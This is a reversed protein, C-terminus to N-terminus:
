STKHQRQRYIVNMCALTQPDFLQRRSREVDFDFCSTMTEQKQHSISVYLGLCLATSGIGVLAAFGLSKLLYWSEYKLGIGQCSWLTLSCVVLSHNLFLCTGHAPDATSIRCKIAMIKTLSPLSLVCIRGAWWFQGQWLDDLLLSFLFAWFLRYSWCVMWIMLVGDWRKPLGRNESVNQDTATKGM